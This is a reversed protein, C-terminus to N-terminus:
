CQVGIVTRLFIIDKEGANSAWVYEAGTRQYPFSRAKGIVLQGPDRLIPKPWRCANYSPLMWANSNGLINFAKTARWEEKGTAYFGGTQIAVIVGYWRGLDTVRLAVVDGKTLTIQKTAVQRWNDVKGQFVGNVFLEAIKDGAYTITSSIGCKEGGVRYRLYITDLGAANSAWVYRAPTPDTFYPAKGAFWARERPRVEARRWRCSETFSKQTWKSGFGPSAKTALWDDRGTAFTRGNIVLEAIFGYWGGLDKVELAIVDGDKVDLDVYAFEEWKNTTLRKVGNVYLVAADNAAFKIHNPVTYAHVASHSLGFSDIGESNNVALSKASLVLCLALLIFNCLIPSMM